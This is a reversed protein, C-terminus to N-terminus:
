LLSASARRMVGDREATAARSLMLLTKWPLRLALPRLSTTLDAPLGVNQLNNTELLPSGCFDRSM